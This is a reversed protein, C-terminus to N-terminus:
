AGKFGTLLQRERNRAVYLIPGHSPEISNDFARATPSSISVGQIAGGPERGIARHKESKDGKRRVVALLGFWARPCCCRAGGRFLAGLCSLWTEPRSPPSSPEQRLTVTFAGISRALLTGRGGGHRVWVPGEISNLPSPVRGPQHHGGQPVYLAGAVGRWLV